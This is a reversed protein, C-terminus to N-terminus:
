SVQSFFGFIKNQLHSRRLSVQSLAQERQQRQRHLPQGQSDRQNEQLLIQNLDRASCGKTVEHEM